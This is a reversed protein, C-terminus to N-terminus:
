RASAILPQDRPGFREYFERGFADFEPKDEGIAIFHKACLAHKVANRSSKAKVEPTKPGTSKQATARNAALRKESIDKSKM